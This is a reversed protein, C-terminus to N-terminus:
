FQINLGLTLRKSDKMGSPFDPDIGLDNGKWILINLASWYGYIECSKISFQKILNHPLEYSLRADSIRIHDGRIVTIESSGYFRERRSSVPYIMSPVVTLNEDGPKLWRKSFEADGQGRRFLSYYNLAPRRFYYALRYTINFSLKVGKYAFSNRLAGFIRPLASGAVIQQELPTSLLERYDTSKKGNIYGQPNGASDLGAWEFSIIAFPDHGPLPNISIGSSTYGNTYGEELYEDVKNQVASLLFNTEWSFEDKSINRTHLIIDLGNGSIKASNSVIFSAGVTPDLQQAGLVDTSKKWYYEISGGIRKNRTEFDLGINIMGVREWRLKKNPYNFIVAYPLNTLHQDASPYYRLTTLAAVSNSVNGSHGYTSRLKLFSLWKWNFFGENSIIWGGGVSWLPVGKQNTNVGFLNSADKRLSGSFLLRKDFIYDAKGYISTFRDLFSSFGNVAPILANGGVNDITPYRNLYDLNTFNLNEDYGYTRHANSHTRVQRVEAGALAHIDHKENFTKDFNLQGRLSYAQFKSESADLIGGLPVIYKVENGEIQTFTNILHRAEFSHVNFYTSGETGSHQYQYSVEANFHNTFQYQVGADITIFDVNTSRKVNELEDLPNYTWDLLKGAGATDTFSGRYFYDIRTRNGDEDVFRTYPYLPVGTTIINIDNYKGPNNSIINRQVYSIGIDLHLKKVPEFSNRSYLSIRENSNGVNVPLRNLYGCSLLYKYQEGGGQLNLSYQQTVGKQYLYKKFANRVDYTRLKDIQKNAEAESIEGNKKDILINVVPSLPPYRRHNNINRNYYGKEYLFQEVDIYDSTEMAQWDFLDPKKAFTINSNFSVQLPQKFSGTETKIVIVGNGARAGWISAASADKLITISEVINPDINSIDGEYPFNDLIILPKTSAFGLTSIGRIQLPADSNHRKDFFVASAIGDIRSLVSPDTGRNFLEKDIKVFSGTTNRKNIDEYGTSVIVDSLYVAKEELAIRLPKDTNLTDLDIHMTEYQVHSIVLVRRKSLALSFWGNNDTTTYIDTGKANVTADTIPAHNKSSVVTGSIQLLQQASGSCSLVILILILLIKM